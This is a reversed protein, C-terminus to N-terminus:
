NCGSPKCRHDISFAGPLAGNIVWSSFTVDRDREQQEAEPLPPEPLFRVSYLITGMFSLTLAAGFLYLRTGEMGTLPSLVLSLAAGGGLGVFV